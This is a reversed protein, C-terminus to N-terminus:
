KCRDAGARESGHISTMMSAAYAPWTAPAAKNPASSLPNKPARAIVGNASQTSVRLLPGGFSTVKRGPNQSRTGPAAPSMPTVSNSVTLWSSPACAITSENTVTVDM